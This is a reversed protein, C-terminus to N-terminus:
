HDQLVRLIRIGLAGPTDYNRPAYSDLLRKVMVFFAGNYLEDVHDDRYCQSQAARGTEAEFIAALNILLQDLAPNTSGKIRGKTEALHELELECASVINEATNRTDRLSMHDAPVPEDSDFEWGAWRTEETVASLGTELTQEVDPALSDIVEIMQSAKAKLKSIQSQREKKPTIVTHERYLEYRTLVRVLNNRFITEDSQANLSAHLANVLDDDLDADVEERLTMGGDFDDTM